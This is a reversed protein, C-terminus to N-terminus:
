KEFIDSSPRLTNSVAELIDEFPSPKKVVFPHDIEKTTATFLVVPIKGAAKIIDKGCGGPGLDYDSLIVDAKPILPLAEFVSSAILPNWKAGKFMRYISKAINQEDDVILVTKKVQDM